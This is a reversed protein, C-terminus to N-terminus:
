TSKPKWWDQAKETRDRRNMLNYIRDATEISQGMMTALPERKSPDGHKRQHTIIINRFFHPNIRKPEDFLFSTAKYVRRTVFAGLSTETFPKGMSNPHANSGIMAFVQNHGQLPMKPRWVNLWEDLDETLLEPLRFEKGEGTKSGIKHDAPEQKVWYGDAERFLTKGLELERIERQRIGCYVLIAVILYHEWASIIARDSRGATSRTRGDERYYRRRPACAKKLYAVLQECEEFTIFKEEKEKQINTGQAKYENGLTRGYDRITTIAKVDDYKLKKSRKHHIWKAINISAAAYQGAWAYTNGRENIGWCNFEELLEKDAMLELCLDELKFGKYNRLWGLFRLIDKRRTRFTIERLPRDQRKSVERATLFYHLGYDPLWDTTKKTFNKLVTLNFDDKTLQRPKAELQKILRPTLETEKLAYPDKGRWRNGKRDQTLDSFLKQKLSNGLRPAYKGNEVAPSESGTPYLKESQLWKLFRILSSKYGRFTSHLIEKSELLVKTNAIFIDEVGRFNALPLKNLVLELNKLESSSFGFNPLVHKRLTSRLNNILTRNNKCVESCVFRNFPHLLTKEPELTDPAIRSANLLGHKALLAKLEDELAPNSVFDESRVLKEIFSLLTVSADM